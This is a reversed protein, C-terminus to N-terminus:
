AEPRHEKAPVTKFLLKGLVRPANTLAPLIGMPKPFRVEDRGDRVAAVVAEVFVPMPTEDRGQSQEALQRLPGYSRAEDDMATKVSAFHVTTVGVPDDRLDARLGGSFHSLGAKSAGYHALGPPNFVAAMSSINVVHGRGRELMGPVLLRALHMPALLNVAMVQEIEEPTRDLYWGVHVVGANNVLVDVPGDALIREVLGPLAARDSLDCPYATGGANSAAADLDKSPRAVLAVEAGARRFGKALEAGIGRSAGTVLVRAGDLQMM